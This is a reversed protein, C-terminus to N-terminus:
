PRNWLTYYFYPSFINAYNYNINLKYPAPYSADCNVGSELGIQIVWGGHFWKAQGNRNECKLAAQEHCDDGNHVWTVGAQHDHNGGVYWNVEFVSSDGTGCTGVRRSATYAALTSAGFVHLQHYTYPSGAQRALDVGGYVAPELTACSVAGVIDSRIWGSHEWVIKHNLPNRCGLAARQYCHDPNSGWQTEWQPRAAQAHYNISGGCGSSVVATSSEVFKGQPSAPWISAHATSLGIALTGCIVAVAALVKRFM